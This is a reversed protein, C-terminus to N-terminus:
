KFSNSFNSKPSISSNRQYKVVSKTTSDISVFFADNSDNKNIFTYDYYSNLKDYTYNKNDMNFKSIDIDLTDILSDIISLAEDDGIPSIPSTVEAKAGNKVYLEDLQGTVSDVVCVYGSSNTSNNWGLHWKYQKENLSDRYLNIYRSTNSNDLDIGLGKEFTKKAIDIAKQRTILNNNKEIEAEYNFVSSQTYLLDEKFSFNLKIIEVLIISISVIALASLLKKM